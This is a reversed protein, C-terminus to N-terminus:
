RNRGPNNESEPDRISGDELAKMQERRNAWYKAMRKSVELREEPSMNKRGRRKRAPEKTMTRLQEELAAIVSDLRKKEEYLGKLAKNVDM